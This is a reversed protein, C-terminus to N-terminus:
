EGEDGVRQLIGFQESLSILRFELRDILYVEGIYLSIVEPEPSRDAAIDELEAMMASEPKPRNANWAGLGLIVVLMSILMIRLSNDSIM